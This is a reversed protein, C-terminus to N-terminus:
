KKINKTGLTLFRYISLKVKNIESLVGVILKRDVQKEDLARMGM